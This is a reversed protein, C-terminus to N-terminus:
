KEFSERIAHIVAACDVKEGNQELLRQVSRDLPRSDRVTFVNQGGSIRVEANPNSFYVATLVRTRIGAGQLINQLTTQHGKVQHLPNYMQKQEAPRGGRSPKYQSLERDSARGSVKGSVNKAELILVGTPAVVIYDTQSRHGKWVIVADPIVTWGSPLRRLLQLTEAEGDAGARIVAVQKRARPFAAAIVLVCLAAPLYLRLVLLVLSGILLAAFFGGWRLFTSIESSRVTNVLNPRIIRAM